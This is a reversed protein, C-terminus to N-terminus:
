VFTFRIAEKRHPVIEGREADARCVNYGSLGDLRALATRSDEKIIGNGSTGLKKTPTTRASRRTFGGSMSFWREEPFKSDIWEQELDDLTKSKSAHPRPEADESMHIWVAESFFLAEKDKCLRNEM